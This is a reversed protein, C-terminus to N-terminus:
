FNCLHPWRWQAWGPLMWHVGFPMGLMPLVLPMTLPQSSHGVARAHTQPTPHRLERRPPMAEANCLTSSIPPRTPKVAPSTVTATQTALNVDAKVLGPVKLLAKGLRAVCSACTMGKINLTASHVTVGYGAKVVAAALASRSV